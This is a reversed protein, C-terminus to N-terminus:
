SVAIGFLSPELSRIASALTSTAPQEHESGRSSKTSTLVSRVADGWESPWGVLVDNKPSATRPLMVALCTSYGQEAARLQRDQEIFSKAVRRRRQGADYETVERHGFDAAKAIAAWDRTSLVTQILGSRPYRLATPDTPLNREWTRSGGRELLRM